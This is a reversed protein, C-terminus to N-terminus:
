REATIEALRRLQQHDVVLHGGTPNKSDRVLLSGDPRGFGVEVCQGNQGSYSSTRWRIPRRMTM